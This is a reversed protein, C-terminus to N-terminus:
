GDLLEEIRNRLEAIEPCLQFFRRRQAISKETMSGRGGGPRRPDGHAQLLPEFVTEKLRPNSRAEAWSGRLEGRYAVCAYIEVEPRAPCCLLTVGESELELELSRMAEESARDADPLFLWLDMFRYRSSLGGRIVSVAQDYGRVRPNTLVTVTAAPRGAEALVMEALPKLIYGNHTPDEPIVLVRFSM